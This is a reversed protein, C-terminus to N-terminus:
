YDEYKRGRRSVFAWHGGEELRWETAYLRCIVDGQEDDRGPLPLYWEEWDDDWCWDEWRGLQEGAEDTDRTDPQAEVSWVRATPRYNWHALSVYNGTDPQKYYWEHWIPNWHWVKASFMSHPTQAPPSKDADADADAMASAVASIAEELDQLDFSPPLTGDNLSTNNTVRWLGRDKLQQQFTDLQSELVDLQPGSNATPAQTGANSPGDVYGSHTDPDSDTSADETRQEFSKASSRKLDGINTQLQIIVNSLRTYADGSAASM